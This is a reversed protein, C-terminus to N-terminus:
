FCLSDCRLMNRRIEKDENEYLMVLINKFLLVTKYPKGHNIYNMIRRSLYSSTVNSLNIVTWNKKIAMVHLAMDVIKMVEHTVLIDDDDDYVPLNEDDTILLSYDPEIMQNMLSEVYDINENLSAAYAYLSYKSNNMIIVDYNYKISEIFRKVSIHEVIMLLFLQTKIKDISNKYHKVIDKILHGVGTNTPINITRVAMREQENLISALKDIFIAKKEPDNGEVSVITAGARYTDM